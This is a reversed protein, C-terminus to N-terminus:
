RRFVSVATRLAYVVVGVLGASILAAGAQAVRRTAVEGPLPQTTTTGAAHSGPRDPEDALAVAGGASGASPPGARLGADARASPDRPVRARRAAEREPEPRTPPGVPEDQPPTAGQLAALLPSPAGDKQVAPPEDPDDDAFETPIGAKRAQEPDATGSPAVDSDFPATVTWAACFLLMRSVLNIWVLLGVVVAFAGYLPNETTREIYVAGVRKLVEFLVAALVAGKLVERWPTQVKPLRIFLYLFLLTSTLLALLTGVVTVVVGAVASDELGVLDLAVDTFAGAAASVLLSFVLTAGLGALIVVDVLKKKVINGARVNQHWVTRVAERLADVWGLGAYLLGALSLLGTVGVKTNDRLLEELGLQEALGPSFSDVERAVTTVASDGLVLTLLSASLALLPFFSLFGFFTVAAALRDGTDAQYRSFARIMHDLGPRKERLRAFTEKPSPM